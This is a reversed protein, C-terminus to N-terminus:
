TMSEESKSKTTFYPQFARALTAEDMGSGTDRITLRVVGLSDRAPDDPGPPVHEVALALTGGDDRMAEVANQCLNMLTQGLQVPDGNVEPLTEPPADLELRVNAPIVRKLLGAVQRVAKDLRVRNKQLKHERVREVLERVLTRGRLSVDLISGLDESWPHGDPVEAKLLEAIGMVAGLINNMDHAVSGALRVTAELRERQELQELIKASRAPDNARSSGADSM